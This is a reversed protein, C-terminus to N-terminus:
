NLKIKMEVRKLSYASYKWRWWWVGTVGYKGNKLYKGNLNADGCNGYWFAGRLYEACNRSDLDNDRDKTTFPRNNHYNLADGIFLINM